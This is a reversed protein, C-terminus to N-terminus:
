IQFNSMAQKITHIVTVVPIFHHLEFNFIDLLM